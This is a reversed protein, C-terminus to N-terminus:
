SPRAIGLARLLAAVACRGVLNKAMWALTLRHAIEPHEVRWQVSVRYPLRRDDNRYIADVGHEVDSQRSADFLLVDGHRLRLVREDRPTEDGPAAWQWTKCPNYQGRCTHYYRGANPGDKLM